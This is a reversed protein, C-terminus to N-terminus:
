GAIHKFNLMSRLLANKRKRKASVDTLAHRFGYISADEDHGLASAGAVNASTKETKDVSAIRADTSLLKGPWVLPAAALGWGSLLRIVLSTLCERLYVLHFLFLDYLPLALADSFETFM